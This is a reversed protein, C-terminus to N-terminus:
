SVSIVSDSVSTLCDDSNVSNLVSDSVSDSTSAEPEDSSMPEDACQTSADTNNVCKDNSSKFVTPKGYHIEFDLDEEEYLGKVPTYNHNFPPPSM